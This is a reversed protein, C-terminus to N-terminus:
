LDIRGILFIKWEFGIFLEYNGLKLRVFPIIESLSGGQLLVSNRDVFNSIGNGQSKAVLGPKREARFPSHKVCSPLAM